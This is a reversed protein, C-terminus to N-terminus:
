MRIPAKTVKASTSGASLGCCRSTMTIAPSPSTETPQPLEREANRVKGKDDFEFRVVPPAYTSVAAVRQNKEADTRVRAAEFPELTQSDVLVTGDDRYRPENACLRSLRTRGPEADVDTELVCQGYLEGGEDILNYESREDGTWPPSVFVKSLARDDPGACSSILPALALGLLLLFKPSIELPSLELSRSL